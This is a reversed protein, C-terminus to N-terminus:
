FDAYRLPRESIVPTSALPLSGAQPYDAGTGPFTGPNEEEFGNDPVPRPTIM